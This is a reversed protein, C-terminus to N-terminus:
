TINRPYLSRLFFCVTTEFTTGINCKYRSQFGHKNFIVHLSTIRLFTYVVFGGSDSFFFLIQKDSNMILRFCGQDQNELMLNNQIQNVM